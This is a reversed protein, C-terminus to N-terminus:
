RAAQDGAEAAQRKWWAKWDAVAQEVEARGADAAPGFDHETV